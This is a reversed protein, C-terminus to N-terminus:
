WIDYRFRITSLYSAKREYKDTQACDFSRLDRSLQETETGSEVRASVEMYADVETPIVTSQSLYTVKTKSGM